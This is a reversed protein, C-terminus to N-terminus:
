PVSPRTAPAALTSAPTYVGLHHACEQNISERGWDHSTMMPLSPLPTAEHLFSVTFGGSCQSPCVRQATRLGEPAPPQANETTGRQLLVPGSYTPTTNLWPGLESLSRSAAANSSLPFQFCCSILTASAAEYLQQSALLDSDTSIVLLKWTSFASGHGDRGERRMEDDGSPVSALIGPHFHLRGGALPCRGLPLSPFNWCGWRSGSAWGM